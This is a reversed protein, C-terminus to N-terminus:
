RLRSATVWEDLRRNHGDYHVYYEAEGGPAGGTARQQLVVASHWQQDSRQVLFSGGVAVETPDM